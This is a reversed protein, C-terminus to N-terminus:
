EGTSISIKRSKLNEPLVRVLSISLMGNKMNAGNVVIHHGLTFTKVFNRSSIGKHLYTSEISEKESKSGTVTLHNNELSIDIDNLDFGAVALEIAFTDDNYKILNHPPYNSEIEGTTMRSLEDLMDDLGISLRQIPAFNLRGVTLANSM